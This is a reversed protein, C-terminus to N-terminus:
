SIRTGALGECVDQVSIHPMLQFHCSFIYFFISTGYVFTLGTTTKHLHLFFFFIEKFFGSISSNMIKPM